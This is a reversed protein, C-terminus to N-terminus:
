LSWLRYRAFTSTPISIATHHCIKTFTTHFKVFIQGNPTESNTPFLRVSQKTLAGFFSYNTSILTHSYGLILGEAV